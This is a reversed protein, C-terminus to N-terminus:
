RGPFGFLAIWIGFFILVGGWVCGLVGLIRATLGEYEGCRLRIYQTKTAKVGKYIMCAGCLLIAFGWFNRSRLLVQTM